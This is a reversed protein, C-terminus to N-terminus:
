FEGKLLDYKNECFGWPFWCQTVPAKEYFITNIIIVIIMIIIIIIIIIIMTIIATYFTQIGYRFLVYM